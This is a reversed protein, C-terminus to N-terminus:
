IIDCICLSRHVSARTIVTTHPAASNYHVSTPADVTCTEFLCENCPCTLSVDNFMGKNALDAGDMELASKTVAATKLWGSDALPPLGPGIM